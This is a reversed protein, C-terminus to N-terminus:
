RAALPLRYIPNGGPRDSPTPSPEYSLGLVVDTILEAQFVAGELYAGVMDSTLMFEDTVIVLFYRKYPGGNPVKDKRRIRDQLAGVLQEKTWNLYMGGSGDPHQKLGKMSAKLTERDVLETVEIGCWQGDVLGECDPPDEGDVRSRLVGVQHGAAELVMKANCREALARDAGGTWYGRVPRVTELAKILADDHDDDM